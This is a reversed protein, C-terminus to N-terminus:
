PTIDNLVERDNVAQLPRANAAYAQTFGAIQAESLTIPTQMVM